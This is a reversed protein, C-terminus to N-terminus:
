SYGPGSFCRLPYAIKLCDVNFHCDCPPKSVEYRLIRYYLDQNAQIKDKLQKEWEQDFEDEKWRAAVTQSPDKNKDKKKRGKKPIESETQGPIARDGPEFHLFVGDDNDANIDEEIEAFRAKEM